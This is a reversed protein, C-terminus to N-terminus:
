KIERPETQKQCFGEPLLGALLQSAEHILTHLGCCRAVPIHGARGEKSDEGVIGVRQALVQPCTWVVLGNRHWWTQRENM